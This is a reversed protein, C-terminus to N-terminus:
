TTKLRAKFEVLAKGIWDEDGSQVTYWRSRSEPNQLDTSSRREIAQKTQYLLGSIEEPTLINLDSNEMHTIMETRANTTVQFDEISNKTDQDIKGSDVLNEYKKLQLM